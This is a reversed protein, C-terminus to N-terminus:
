ISIMDRMNILFIRFPKRRSICCAIAQRTGKSRGDWFAIVFDAKEIIANNRYLPAARGYKQYRPRICTYKLGLRGAAKKAFFDVGKAGGSIIESCGAPLERLIMALTENGASRSGIVAVRMLDGGQLDITNRLLNFVVFKIASTIYVLM